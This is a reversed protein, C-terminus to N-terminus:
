GTGAEGVDVSGNVCLILQTFKKQRDNKQLTFSVVLANDAVKKVKWATMSCESIYLPNVGRSELTDTQRYLGLKSRKWYYTYYTGQRVTQVVIRQTHLPLLQDVSIRLGNYGIEKELFVQMYRGANALQVDTLMHQWSILVQRFNLSLVGVLLTVILLSIQLEVLM